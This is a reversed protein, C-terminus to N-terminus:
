RTGTSPRGPGSRPSARSTAPAKKMSIRSPVTMAGAAGDMAPAGGSRTKMYSRGARKWTAMIGAVVGVGQLLLLLQASPATRPLGDPHPIRVGDLGEEHGEEGGEAEVDVAAVHVIRPGFGM